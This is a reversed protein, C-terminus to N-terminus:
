PWFGTVRMGQRNKLRSDNKKENKAKESGGLSEPCRHPFTMLTEFFDSSTGLVLASGTGAWKEAIVAGTHVM